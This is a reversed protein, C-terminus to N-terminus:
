RTGILRMSIVQCMNMISTPLSLGNLSPPLIAVRFNLEMLIWLPTTAVFLISFFLLVCFLGTGRTTRCLSLIVIEQKNSESRYPTVNKKGSVCFDLRPLPWTILIPLTGSPEVSVPEIYALHVVACHGDSRATVDCASVEILIVM